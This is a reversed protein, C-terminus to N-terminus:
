TLAITIARAAINVPIDLMFTLALLLLTKTWTAGAPARYVRALALYVYPVLIAYLAVVFVLPQGQGFARYIGNAALAALYFFAVYYLAFIVHAGIGAPTRRYLMALVLTVALASFVPSFTYVTNLRTNFRKEFEDFPMRTEALRADVASRLEGGNDHALLQRLNFGGIAPAALFFIAAALFYMKLPGVYRIRRGEIFGAALYGPRFLAALSRITKFDFRMLEVAFQHVFPAPSLPDDGLRRQGCAHCFEGQLRLGCNACVPSSVTLV